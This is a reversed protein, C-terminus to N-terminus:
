FRAVMKAIHHNIAAATLLDYELYSFRLGKLYQNMTKKSMPPALLNREMKSINGPDLGTKIAHARLTVRNHSRITRLINGFSMDRICKM